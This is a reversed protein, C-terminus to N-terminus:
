KEERLAFWATYLHLLNKETDDSSDWQVAVPSKKLVAFM